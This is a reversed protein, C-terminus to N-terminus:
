RVVWIMELYGFLSQFHGRKALLGLRCDDDAGAGAAYGEGGAKGFCAEGDGDEFLVGEGAAAAGEHVVLAVAEVLPRREEQEGWSKWSVKRSRSVM